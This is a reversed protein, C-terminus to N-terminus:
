KFIIYLVITAVLLIIFIIGTTRFAKYMSSLEKDAKLVEFPTAVLISLAMFSVIGTLIILIGITKEM